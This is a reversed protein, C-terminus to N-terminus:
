GGRDMALVSGDAGIVLWAVQRRIAADPPDFM